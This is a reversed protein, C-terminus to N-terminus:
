IDAEADVEGLEDLLDTVNPGGNGGLVEGDGAFRVLLLNSRAHKYTKSTWMSIQADVRCGPYFIGNGVNTGDDETVLNNERDYTAIRKAAGSRLTGGKAKIAWGDFDIGDDEKTLTIEKVCFRETKEPYGRPFKKESGFEEIGITKSM